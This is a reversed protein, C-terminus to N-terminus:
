FPAIFNLPRITKIFKVARLKQKSKDNTTLDGSIQEWNYGKDRSRFIVNGGTYVTNADHPSIHIPSDWNFRYKHNEIADGASGIIKPYPHITRVNGTNTDVHYIVGGQLNAYVENEQGPIPV